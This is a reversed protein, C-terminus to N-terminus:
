GNVAARLEEAITLADELTRILRGRKETADV